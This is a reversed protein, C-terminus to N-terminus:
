DTGIFEALKRRTRRAPTWQPRASGLELTLLRLRWRPMTARNARWDQIRQRTVGLIEVLEATSLGYELEIIKLEENNTM